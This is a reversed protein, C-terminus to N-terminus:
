RARGKHEAYLALVQEGTSLDASYLRNAWGEWGNSFAEAAAASLRERLGGTDSEAQAKRFARRAEGVINCLQYVATIPRGEREAFWAAITMEEISIRRRKM